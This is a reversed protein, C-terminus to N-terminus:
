LKVKAIKMFINSLLVIIILTILSITATYPGDSSGGFYIRGAYSSLTETATGPGSDTMVKVYDFARLLDVGRIVVAIAIVKSMM